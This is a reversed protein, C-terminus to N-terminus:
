NIVLMVDTSQFFISDGLNQCKRWVEYWNNFENFQFINNVLLTEPLFFGALFIFEQHQQM